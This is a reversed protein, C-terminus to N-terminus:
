ETSITFLQFVMGCFPVRDSKSILKVLPAKQTTDWAFIEASITGYNGSVECHVARNIGKKLIPPLFLRIKFFFPCPWVHKPVSSFSFYLFKRCNRCWCCQWFHDPTTIGFCHVTRHLARILPETQKRRIINKMLKTTKKHKKRKKFFPSVFAM